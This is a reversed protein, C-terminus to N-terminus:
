GGALANWEEPSGGWPMAYVEIAAPEQPLGTLDLLSFPLTGSAPLADVYGTAGTLLAGAEDRYLATVAMSGVAKTFPNAVEGVVQRSYEDGTRQVGTTIFPPYDTPTTKTPYWDVTAYTVEVAAPEAPADLLGAYAIDTGPPLANLTQQQTAIVQGGADRATM